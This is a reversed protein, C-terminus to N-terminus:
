AATPLRVPMETDRAWPAPRDVPAVPAQGAAAIQAMLVELPHEPPEYSPRNM